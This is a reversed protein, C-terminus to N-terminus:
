HGNRTRAIRGENQGGAGLAVAIPFLAFAAELATFSAPAGPPRGQSRHGAQGVVKHSKTFVSDERRSVRILSVISMSSLSMLGREARHSSIPEIWGM